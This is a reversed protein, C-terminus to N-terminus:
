SKAVKRRYNEVEWNDIFNIQEPSMFHPGGFQESLYSIKMMDTFVELVTHLSKMHEETIILGGQEEVIVKPYYGHAKEFDELKKELEQSDIGKELFLYNSKCYV